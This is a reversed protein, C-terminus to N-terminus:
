CRMTLQPFHRKGINIKEDNINAQYDKRSFKRAEGNSFMFNYRKLSTILHKGSTLENFLITRCLINREVTNIQWGLVYAHHRQCKKCRVENSNKDFGKPEHLILYEIDIQLQLNFPGPCLSELISKVLKASSHFM